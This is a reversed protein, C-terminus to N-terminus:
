DQSYVGLDGLVVLGPGDVPDVPLPPSSVSIGSVTADAVAAGLAETITGIMSQGARSPYTETPKPHRFARAGRPDTDLDLVEGPGLSDFYAIVGIALTARNSMDPSIVAGVVVATTPATALDVTYVGGGDDTVNAVDLAEFASTAPVWQMVSIGAVPGAQGQPLQGAGAATLEFQTPTNVTTVLVNTDGAGIQPFPALDTWGTSSGKLQSLELTVNSSVPNPPVVVTLARPPVVPSAPSVLYATVTALVGATPIRALPGVVGARKQTVAVVVSGAGLACAYVFGDEVSVSSERAWARFQATNGAAPKHRIRSALRESFDDDDEPPAGGRFDLGVVAATPSSGPPANTWTLVTGVVINTQEGADIAGLQLTAQGNADAAGTILVQYRNGAPDTAFTATADPLTTSGVWTTGANGTAQVSGAGGFGPLFNEGWQPGHFNALYAHGARDVRAQQALFEARKIQGQSILDIADAEVFFRSGPQTVQRITDETFPQGNDPDVLARLGERYNALILERVEGRRYVAFQRETPSAM